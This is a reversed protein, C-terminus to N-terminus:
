RKEIPKTTAVAAGWSTKLQELNSRLVKLRMEARVLTLTAMAQPIAFVILQGIGAAGLMVLWTSPERLIRFANDMSQGKIWLDIIFPVVGAFNMAGVAATASKERDTDIFLVVLTPVLGLALLVITPFMFPAAMGLIVMITFFGLKSRKKAPKGAAAPAAQKKDDKKDAM